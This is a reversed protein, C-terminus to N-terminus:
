GTVVIGFEEMREKIEPSDLTQLTTEYLIKAKKAPLNKPAVFGYWGSVELNEIGIEKMTPIDPLSNMREPALVALPKVKGSQLHPLLPPLNEFTIQVEGAAVANTAPGSGRYAVHTIESGTTQNFLAGSLHQPSGIGASGY